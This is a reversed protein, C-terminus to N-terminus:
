KLNKKRSARFDLCDPNDLDSFPKALLFLITVKIKKNVLIILWLKAKLGHNFRYIINVIVLINGTKQDEM